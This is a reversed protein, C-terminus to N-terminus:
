PSPPSSFFFCTPTVNWIYPGLRNPQNKHTRPHPRPHPSTIATDPKFSHAYERWALKGAHNSILHVCEHSAEAMVSVVCETNPRPSPRMETQSGDRKYGLMCQTTAPSQPHKAPHTPLHAREHWDRRSSPTLMPQIAVTSPRTQWAPTAWVCGRLCRAFSGLAFMDICESLLMWLWLLRVMNLYLCLGCFALLLM